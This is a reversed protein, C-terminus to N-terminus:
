RLNLLLYEPMTAGYRQGASERAGERAYRTGLDWALMARNVMDTTPWWLGDHRPGPFPVGQPHCCRSEPLCWPGHLAMWYPANGYQQMSTAKNLRWHTAPDDNTWVWVVIPAESFREEPAHAHQYSLDPRTVLTMRPDCVPYARRCVWLVYRHGDEEVWHPFNPNFPPYAPSGPHPHPAPSTPVLPLRNSQWFIYANSVLLVHPQVQAADRHAPEAAPCAPM